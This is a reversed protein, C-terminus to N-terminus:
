GGSGRQRYRRLAEAREEDHDVIRHPYGARYGTRHRWPEHAAAGPLHRLEPVWHRVYEGDPDFRLGQRVPNFVRFYPAAGIGTGAVWQWGHSNSAVDADLLQDHFHRAGAPWWVHLDKTLFSATVMRARNHMWGTALLERMGADVFPYGTRGRRWADVMRDTHPGSDYGLGALESRADAWASGPHRRLLDAYFERWCLESAFRAAGASADRTGALDALLTRPHIEGFKLHVSMRSTGAGAPLDRRRAYDALGRERFAQWRRVAAREGADGTGAPAPLREGPLGRHWCPSAVPLPAPVDRALWAREFASFVRYGDGGGSPRLTGPAVAYGTGTGVLARGEAGLAAAVRRDRRAGYPRSAVTCHVESAGAEAALRAIVEAPDGRRVTLTGGTGALDAALAALSARLREVRRNPRRLLAPDWVFVPLVRQASGAAAHLAENDALRLDTRLWLLATSM